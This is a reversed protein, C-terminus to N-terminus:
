MTSCLATAAIELGDMSMMHWFAMGLCVLKDAWHYYRCATTKCTDNIEAIVPDLALNYMDLCCKRQWQVANNTCDSAKLISQIGLVHWTYPHSMVGEDNDLCFSLIALSFIGKNYSTMCLNM